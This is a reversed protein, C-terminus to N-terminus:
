RGLTVELYEIVALNLDSFYGIRKSENGCKIKRWINIHNSLASSNYLLNNIEECFSRFCASFLLHEQLGYRIHVIFNGKM